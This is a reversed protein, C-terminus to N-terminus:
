ETRNIQKSRKSNFINRIKYITDVIALILLIYGLYNKFTGVDEPRIYITYLIGLSFFLITRIYNWVIRIM